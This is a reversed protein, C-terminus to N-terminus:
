AEWQRTTRPLTPFEYRVATSTLLGNSQAWATVAPDATRAVAARLQATTDTIARDIRHMTKHLHQLHAFSSQVDDPLAAATFQAFGPRDATPTQLTMAFTREDSTDQWGKIRGASGFRM